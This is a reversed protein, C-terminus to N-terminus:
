PVRRVLRLRALDDLLSAIDRIVLDAGVAHAEALSAAVDELTIPRGLLDWLLAGTGELALPDGDPVPVIVVADPLRRWLADESRVWRLSTANAQTDARM